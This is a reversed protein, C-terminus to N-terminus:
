KASASSFSSSITFVSSFLATFHHDKSSARFIDFSGHNTSRIYLFSISFHLYSCRLKCKAPLRYTVFPSFSSIGFPVTIITASLVQRSLSRPTGAGLYSKRSIHVPMKLGAPQQAPLYCLFLAAGTRETKLM